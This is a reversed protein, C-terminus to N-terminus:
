VGRLGLRRGGVVVAIATEAGALLLPAVVRDVEVLHGAHSLAGALVVGAGAARLAALDHRAAVRGLAGRAVHLAVLCRASGSSRDSLVAGRGSRRKSNGRPAPM